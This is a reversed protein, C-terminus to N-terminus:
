FFPKLVPADDTEAYEHLEREFLSHLVDIIRSKGTGAGGIIGLYLPPHNSDLKKKRVWDLVHWFIKRQQGNLERINEYYTKNAAITSSTDSQTPLGDHFMEKSESDEDVHEPPFLPLDECDPEALADNM